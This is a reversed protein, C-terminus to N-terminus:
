SLKDGYFDEFWKGEITLRWITLMEKDLNLIGEKTVGEPIKVVSNLKNFVEERNNEPVRSLLHWLTLSTKINPNKLIIQLSEKGGNEFDFKYLANQYEASANEAFPTGIGIGKKSIAMAGVPVISEAGDRELAVFGSTVHLKSNGNEDVELTYACGLDVAVASPTDVMFLRPPAIIFAELTGKELSLRHETEETKVLQVRSNPKVEVRGIDAVQVMASSNGDTELTEGVAFSGKDGIIQNDTKPVGSLTKIDWENTSVNKEPQEINPQNQALDNPINRWYFLSFGVAILVVAAVPILIKFGFNSSLTKPEPENDLTSVINQWVKDPAKACELKSALNIGFKIEDHEKRCEVCQLLHEAIQQREGSPLENNLYASIKEKYHMM